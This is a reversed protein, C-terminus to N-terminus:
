LVTLEGYKKDKIFDINDKTKLYDSQCGCSLTNGSLLNESSVHIVNGCDCKCEWIMHNHSKYTVKEKQYLGKPIPKIAVLNGFRNNTLDRAQKISRNIHCGCSTIKGARLDKGEVLKYKGCLCLCNWKTRGKEKVPRVVYLAGYTKGTEDILKAM